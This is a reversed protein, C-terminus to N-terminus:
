FRFAVKVSETEGKGMATAIAERYDAIPFTHTLLPGIPACGRSVLSAAEEFAGSAPAGHQHRGGYCLSGKVTLEKLWLPTWDLGNMMTANGLLVITGGARTVCMADEMAQTTGVCVFTQDFGGVGVRKGIIPQLLRTNAADALTSQYDGRAMVVRSAGLRSAHAAQFAHRALVTVTAGPALAHLAAVTLLGISGAGVVLVRANPPPVNARVAHVSCAFPEILVAEEDRLADPVPVIQTEHMVFEDGWSGGLDRTTGLLMGPALPGDTFHVCRQPEGAACAACPPDIGRVV